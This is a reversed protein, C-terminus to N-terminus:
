QVKLDGIEKDKENRMQDMQHQMDNFKKQWATQNHLLHENMQKEEKLDGTLKTLKLTASSLRQETKSKEKTLADIQEKLAQFNLIFYYPTIWLFTSM